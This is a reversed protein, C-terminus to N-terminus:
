LEDDEDQETKMGQSPLLGTVDRYGLIQTKESFLIFTEMERVVSCLCPKSLGPSSNYQKNTNSYFHWFVM